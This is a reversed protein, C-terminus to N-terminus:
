GPDSSGATLTQVQGMAPRFQVSVESELHAMTSVLRIGEDKLFEGIFAQLGDCRERSTERDESQAVLRAQWHQARPDAASLERLARTLLSLNGSLTNDTLNPDRAQGPAALRLHLMAGCEGVADYLCVVMSSHLQACLLVDEATIRYDDAAVQLQTTSM